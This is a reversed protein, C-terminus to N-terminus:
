KLGLKHFILETTAMAFGGMIGVVIALFLLGLANLLNQLLKIM